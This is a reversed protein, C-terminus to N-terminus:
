KCNFMEMVSEMINLPAVQQKLEVPMIAEKFMAVGAKKYSKKCMTPVYLPEMVPMIAEEFM